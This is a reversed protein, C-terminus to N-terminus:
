LYAPTQNKLQVSRGEYENKHSKTCVSGSFLSMENGTYEVEKESGKWKITWYHIGLGPLVLGHVM